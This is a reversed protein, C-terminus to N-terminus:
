SSVTVTLQGAQFHTQLNAQCVPCRHNQAGERIEVLMRKGCHECIIYRHVAPASNETDPGNHEPIAPAMAPNTRTDSIGRNDTIKSAIAYPPSPSEEVDV